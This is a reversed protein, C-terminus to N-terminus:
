TNPLTITFTSGENEMSHASIRGRQAEVLQRCIQLGLGSGREGATGVTTTGAGAFLTHSQEESMGVGNDHVSISTGTDDVSSDIRICGGQPTFKVANSILNRLVIRLLKEDAKIEHSSDVASTLEITKQDTLIRLEQIVEEVLAAPHLTRLTLDLMGAESRSWTLVDELMRVTDRSATRIESIFSQKEEESLTVAGKSMLDALGQIGALSNRIDHALISLMRKRWEDRNEIIRRSQYLEIHTRIRVLLEEEQFPKTIYDVGGAKFGKVMDESSTYAATLFIVPMGETSESSKLRRCVEYGDMQPMSIDLLVLDPPKFEASELAEAGSQAVHVDFNNKKLISGLVRLNEEVDDVILVAPVKNM